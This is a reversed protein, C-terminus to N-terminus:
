CAVFSADPVRRKILTSFGLRRAAACVEAAVEGPATADRRRWDDTYETQFVAKGAAIFPQVRGCERYFFCEENLAWDFARVTAADIVEVGNKMGVSLGAAHAHRAVSLYWSREQRRNIPFGPDNGIPNNQDPEVADCGIRAALRFRAWIIPAFRGRRRPRIDLWREGSWGTTNGLTRRPFLHADPEYSEWAGSDLYCVAVKGAAHLRAVIGANEGRPWTAAGFGSVRVRTRRPIADTLDVDYAAVDELAGIAGVIQWQWTTGPPPTWVPAAAAPAAASGVIAGVVAVLAM